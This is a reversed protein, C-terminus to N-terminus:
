MLKARAVVGEPGPGRQRRAATGVRRRIPHRNRLLQPFVATVPTLSRSSCGFLLFVPNYHAQLFAFGFLHLLTPFPSAIAGFAHRSQPRRGPPHLPGPRRCSHFPGTTSPIHYLIPAGQLRATATFGSRPGHSGRGGGSVIVAAPM